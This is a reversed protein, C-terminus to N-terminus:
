TTRILVTLDSGAVSSGVQDIDVTLYQGAAVAVVDPVDEAGSDYDGAVVTTRASQTTFLTTGNKNVDIIIEAGTPATGVM